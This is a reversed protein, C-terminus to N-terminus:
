SFVTQKYPSETPKSTSFDLIQEIENNTNKGVSSSLNLGKRVFTFLTGLFTWM